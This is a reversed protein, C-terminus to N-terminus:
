TDEYVVRDVEAIEDFSLPPAGPPHEIGLSQRRELKSQRVEV